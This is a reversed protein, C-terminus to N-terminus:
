VGPGCFFGYIDDELIEFSVELFKVESIPEYPHWKLDSKMWCIKGSMVRNTINLKLWLDSWKKQHIMGNQAFRLPKSNDDLNTTVGRYHLGRDRNRRTISQKCFIWAMYGASNYRRLSKLSSM